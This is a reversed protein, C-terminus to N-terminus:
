HVLKRSELYLTVSYMLGVKRFHVASSIKHHKNTL